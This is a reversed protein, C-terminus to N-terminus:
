NPCKKVSTGLGRMLKPIALEEVINQILYVFEKVSLIEKTNGEHIIFSIKQINRLVREFRIFIYSKWKTLIVVNM